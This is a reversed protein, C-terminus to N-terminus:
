MAQNGSNDGDTGGSHFPWERLDGDRPFEQMNSGPVYRRIGSIITIIARTAPCHAPFGEAGARLM